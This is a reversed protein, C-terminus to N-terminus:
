QVAIRNGSPVCTEISLGSASNMDVYVLLKSTGKDVVPVQNGHLVM